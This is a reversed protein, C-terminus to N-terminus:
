AFFDKVAAAVVSLIGVTVTVAVGLIFQRTKRKQDTLKANLDDRADELSDSAKLLRRFAQMYDSATATATAEKSRGRILLQQVERALAICDGYNPVVDRVVIDKYDKQLQQISKLLSTIGAEAAEYMARECHNCARRLQEQDAVTGDDDLSQLLHHGAYRLENHAPISISERFEAVERAFKDADEYLQRYRAIDGNEGNLAETTTSSSTKSAKM